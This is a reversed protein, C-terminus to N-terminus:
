LVNCYLDNNLDATSTRFKQSEYFNTNMLALAVGLKIDLRTKNEMPKVGEKFLFYTAGHQASETLKLDQQM